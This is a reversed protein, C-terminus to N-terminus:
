ELDLSENQEEYLITVSKYLPYGTLFLTLLAKNKSRTGVGVILPLLTSFTLAIKPFTEIALSPLEKLGNAYNAWSTETKIDSANILDLDDLNLEHAQVIQLCISTSFFLAFNLYWKKM